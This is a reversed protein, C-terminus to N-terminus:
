KKGEGTNNNIIIRRQARMATQLGEIYANKEALEQSLRQNEKCLQRYDALITEKAWMPLFRNYFWSKIKRIMM